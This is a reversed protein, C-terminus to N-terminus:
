LLDGGHDPTAAHFFHNFGVEYLLASSAYTAIHGGLESSKKGARLVMMAANWRIASSIQNELSEDGPYKPEDRCDITNIYPTVHSFNIGQRSAKVTLRHLLYEARDKGEHKIVAQLAALWEHTEKPDIDAQPTFLDNRM